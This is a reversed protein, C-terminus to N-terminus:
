TDLTFSTELSSTCALEQWCQEPSQQWLSWLLQALTEPKPPHHGPLLRRFSQTKACDGLCSSRQAPPALYNHSHGIGYRPSRRSNTDLRHWHTWHLRRTPEAGCHSYRGCGHSPSKRRAPRDRNRPASWDPSRTHRSSFRPNSRCKGSYSPTCRRGSSRSGGFWGGLYPRALGRRENASIRAALVFCRMPTMACARPNTRKPFGYSGNPPNHQQVM